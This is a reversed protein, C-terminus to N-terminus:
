EREIGFIGCNLEEGEIESNGSIKVIANCESNDTWNPSGNEVSQSRTRGSLMRIEREPSAPLLNIRINM